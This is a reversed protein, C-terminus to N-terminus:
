RDCLCDRGAGAGRHDSAAGGPRPQGGGAEPWGPGRGADPSWAGGVRPGGGDGRLQRRGAARLSIDKGGSRNRFCLHQLYYRCIGRISILQLVSVSEM